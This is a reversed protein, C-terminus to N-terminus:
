SNFYEYVNYAWRRAWPCNDTRLANVKRWQDFGKGSQIWQDVPVSFGTKKRNLQISSIKNLLVKKLIQKDGHQRSRILVPMIQRFFVPDVFPTRVELSHAMGTWDSDRLLQNRMYFSTELAMVKEYAGAPADPLSDQMRDILALRSLSHEIFDDKFFFTLEEPMFLGRQLLYAGAYNKGYKSIGVSKPHKFILPFPFWPVLSAISVCKPINKFSAYGGFFEDAGLGSLAVKLGTLAAAKSVFYNNVGDISPQDMSQMFDQLDEQFEKQTLTYITHRAGYRQAVQKALPLEDKDTGEFEEFALTVAELNHFGAQSAFALLAASDIGSSLFIGVPVDAVFHQKVTDILANKITECHEPSEDSSSFSELTERISFYRKTDVIGNEKVWIFMGAEVARIDEYWTFPEPISGILFFGTVGAPDQTKSVAPSKLLAKVQSAARITKGNDSYYLPKIGFPDRALLLAKKQGDWLAFAFMGRLDNFMAEGKEAYLHLLVETDSQSKFVYGKTELDRRLQRYNYIEGNFTIALRGDLSTMPQAANESLDIISLRTHGMAIRGDPSIWEGQGDPGRKHMFDRIGRLEQPNADPAKEHYAFITVIGCM